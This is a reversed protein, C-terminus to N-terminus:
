NSNGFVLEYVVREQPEEAEPDGEPDFNYHSKRINM